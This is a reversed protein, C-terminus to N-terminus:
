LLKKLPINSGFPSPPLNGVLSQSDFIFFFFAWPPAIGQLFSGSSVPGLSFSCYFVLDVEPILFFFKLPPTISM